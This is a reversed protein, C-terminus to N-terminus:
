KDSKCESLVANQTSKIGDFIFLTQIYFMDIVCEDGSQSQTDIQSHHFVANREYLTHANQVHQRYLYFFICNSIRAHVNCHVVVIILEEKKEDSEKWNM